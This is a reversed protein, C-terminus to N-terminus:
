WTTHDKGYVNPSGGWFLLLWILVIILVLHYLAATKQPVTSQGIDTKVGFDPILFVRELIEFLARVGSAETNYLHCHIWTAFRYAWYSVVIKGPSTWGKMGRLRFLLSPQLSKHDGVTQFGIKEYHVLRLWLGHRIWPAPINALMFPTYQHSGHLVMYVLVMPGIPLIMFHSPSSGQVFILWIKVEHADWTTIKSWPDGSWLSFM